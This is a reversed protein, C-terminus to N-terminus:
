KEKENEDLTKVQEQVFAVMEVIKDAVDSMTANSPGQWSLDPHSEYKAFDNEDAYDLEFKFGSAEAIAAMQAIGDKDTRPLNMAEAFEGSDFLYDGYRCYTLLFPENDLISIPCEIWIQEQDNMGHNGPRWHAEYRDGLLDRLQLLQADIADRQEQISKMYDDLGM